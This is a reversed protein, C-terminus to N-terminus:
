DPHARLFREFAPAGRLVFLSPQAAYGRATSGVPAALGAELWRVATEPEGLRAYVAAVTSAGLVDTLDSRLAARRAGALAAALTRRAARPDGLAAESLARAALLDPGQVGGLVRGTLLSRVSDYYVNAGALDGRRLRVDAKAAYYYFVSDYLTTVGQERASLELFRPGHSGGAQSMYWLLYSDPRPVHALARGLERELAVTDGQGHAVYLGAMWGRPDASDLATVADAYRRGEEWRRLGIALEAANTLLRGSRPALLAARRALAYATDHRQRV